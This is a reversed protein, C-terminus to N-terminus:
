LFTIIALSALRPSLDAAHNIPLTDSSRTDHARLALSLAELAIAATRLRDMQRYRNCKYTYSYMRGTCIWLENRSAKSGLVAGRWHFGFVCKWGNEGCFGWKRSFVRAGSTHTRATSPNKSISFTERSILIFLLLSRHFPLARSLAAVSLSFSLASVSFSTEKM